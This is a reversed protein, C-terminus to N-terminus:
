NKERQEDSESLPSRELVRGNGADIAIKEAPGGRRPKVNFAYVLCGKRIALEAKSADLAQAGPQRMLVREADAKSLRALAPLASALTGNPPRISCAAEQAPAPSAALPLALAVVSLAIATSRM